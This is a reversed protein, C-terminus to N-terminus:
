HQRHGSQTRSSCVPALSRRVPSYWKVSLPSSMTCTKIVTITLDIEVEVTFVNIMSVIEVAMAIESIM